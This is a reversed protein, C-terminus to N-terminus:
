NPSSIVAYKICKVAFYITDFTDSKEDTKGLLFENNFLIFFNGRGSSYSPHKYIMVNRFCIQMYSFGM